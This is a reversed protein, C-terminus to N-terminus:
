IIMMLILIIVILLVAVGHLVQDQDQDKGWARLCACVSCSQVLSGGCLGQVGFRRYVKLGFRLRGVILPVAKHLLAQV